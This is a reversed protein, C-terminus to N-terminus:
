AEIVEMGMFPQLVKPIEVSGDARQYNELIAIITRGIAIATGNLTHVLEATGDEKKYKINLRRSQFDTCNSTSHTERYKQQGPMYTEIDYKRAAQMGLDGSCMKVIQYSLGLETMINEELSLLYEHEKDSNEPEVFSVMEVKDFQHVRLIGRTDKGYSGAERRFASAFGVYRLPLAKGDLVEDQHMGVLPQEATAILYLDDQTKYVEEEGVPLYGTGMVTIRNVLDPPRAPIFGESILKRMAYDILAMELLVAESKLFTFRAGSTKAARAIDLIGLKEGLDVHDKPTFDFKRPAGKKAVIENKSEDKGEKVDQAPLNPLRLMINMWKDTLDNYEPKLKDVTQSLTSAEKILEVKKQGFQKAVDASLRNLRSQREELDHQVKRRDRDIALLEDIVEPDTGKAKVGVKVKDPNDRIFKIDLM